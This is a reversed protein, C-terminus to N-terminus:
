GVGPSKWSKGLRAPREQSVGASQQVDAEGGDLLVRHFDGSYNGIRVHHKAFWNDLSGPYGDLHNELSEGLPLGHILHEIGRWRQTSFAYAGCDPVGNVNQAKIHDIGYARSLSEERILIYLALKDRSKAVRSV